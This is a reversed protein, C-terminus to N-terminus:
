FYATTIGTAEPLYGASGLHSETVMQCFQSPQFKNLSQFLTLLFLTFTCCFLLPSELRHDRRIGTRSTTRREPSVGGAAATKVVLEYVLGATLGEFVMQTINPLLRHEQNFSGTATLTVLYLEVAGESPQWSAQLSHSSGTNDLRLGSM